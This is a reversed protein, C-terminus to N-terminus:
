IFIVLINLQRSYCSQQTLASHKVSVHEFSAALCVYIVRDCYSTEHYRHSLELTESDCTM